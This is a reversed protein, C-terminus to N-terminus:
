RQTAEQSLTPGQTWKGEDMSLNQGSRAKVPRTCTTVPERLGTIDSFATDKFDDVM